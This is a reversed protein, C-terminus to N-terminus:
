NEYSALRPAQAFGPYPATYEINDDARVNSVQRNRRPSPRQTDEPEVTRESGVERRPITNVPNSGYVRRAQEANTRMAEIARDRLANSIRGESVWNDVERVLEDDARQEALERGAAAARQLEDFTDKDLTVVELDLASAPDDDPQVPEEQEPAVDTEKTLNENKVENVQTTEETETQENLVEDLANLVQEDTLNDAKVGLKNAVIQKFNVTSTDKGGMLPAHNFLKEPPAGRRGQFRNIIAYSSASAAVSELPTEGEDATWIEDALGVDVAEEATFWTEAKMAERWDAPDGGARNAYIQAISESIRDLREISRQMEDSNGYAGMIADHIMIEAGPHIVVRDAGGAVVFSAASFAMGEVVAEVRAPHTKLANMIAIGQYADGGPSNVHLKITDVDLDALERVFAGSDVDWGIEGYFYVTAERNAVNKIQLVTM